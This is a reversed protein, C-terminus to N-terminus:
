IRRKLPLLRLGTNKSHYRFHGPTNTCLFALMSLYIYKRLRSVVGRERGWGRGYSVTFYSKGTTEPIENFECSNEIISVTTRTIQTLYIEIVSMNLSFLTLSYKFCQHQQTKLALLLPSSSIEDLPTNFLMIQPFLHISSDFHQPVVYLGDAVCSKHIV